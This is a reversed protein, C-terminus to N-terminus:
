AHLVYLAGFVTPLQTHRVVWGILVLAFRPPIKLFRPLCGIEISPLFQEIQALLLKCFGGLM